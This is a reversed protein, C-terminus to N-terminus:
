IRHRRRAMMCSSARALRSRPPSKRHYLRRTPRHHRTPCRAVAAVEVAVTAMQAIALSPRLRPHQRRGGRRSRESLTQRLLVAARRSTRSGSNGRATKTVTRQRVAFVYSCSRDPRHRRVAATRAVCPRRWRQCYSARMRMTRSTRSGSGTSRRSSTRRSVAVTPM